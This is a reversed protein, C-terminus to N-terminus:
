RCTCYTSGHTFVYLHKIVPMHIDGDGKLFSFGHEYESADNLYQIKTCWISKSKVIGVLGHMNTYHYLRLADWNKQKESDKSTNTM